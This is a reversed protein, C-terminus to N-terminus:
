PGGAAPPAACIPARPRLPPRNLAPARPAAVCAHRQAGPPGAAPAPLAPTACPAALSPTPPALPAARPAPTSRAARAEPAAPLPPLRRRRRPPPRARPPCRRDGPGWCGWGPTAPAGDPRPADMAQGTLMHHAAPACTRCGTLRRSHLPCAGGAAACRHHQPRRRSQAVKCIPQDRPIPRCLLRHPCWSAPWCTPIRPSPAAARRPRGVTARSRAVRAPRM